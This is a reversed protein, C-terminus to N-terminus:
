GAFLSKLSGLNTDTNRSRHKTLDSTTPCTAVLGHVQASHGNGDHVEESPYEWARERAPSHKPQDGRRSASQTAPAARVHCEEPLDLGGKVLLCTAKRKIDTNGHPEHLHQQTCQAAISTTSRTLSVTTQSLYSIAKCRSRHLEISKM